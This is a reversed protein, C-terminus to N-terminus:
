FKYKLAFQVIRPNGVTSSIVGFGPGANHDVDPAGFKPTNTLNFIEGRFEIRNRETITFTRQLGLDLNLQSPGRLIGVGCNGFGTGDGIAPADTFAGPNFYGAPHSATQNLRSTLPGSSAPNEGTCEARTFGVLNGYVSGAASDNVTLPLGSQLVSVGSLQWHSLAIRPWRPGDKLSPSDYIFSFVVRHPRSFDDPGYSSRANNQDNGLFTLDFASTPGTGYTYGLSKSFTYSAQFSLGHSAAKTVSTQLSNYNSSYATNCIYSGSAIGEFPLRQPLNENTTTTQGNVPNEPTAILAQNFELCGTQHTIMSGVYGTQLLFNHAFEYQLNLDYQQSYPSKLNRGIASLFISSNPTRPVFVPFDANPILPPHYPQALTAAANEAGFPSQTIAFPPYGLNEMALQGSLRTYYIGYGGRLVFIPRQSLQYAFGLRPSFDKWDSNWMGPYLNKTYGAPLSGPFNSSVVYGSFGGAPSVDHSAISPDFNSLEGHTESPPGFYEYRLGANVSLRSNVKVDDQVFGALDTYRENKRFQGSSGSSEYLNSEGSGNQAASEGLLFDPFSLLFLFGDAGYPINVNLQNLKAEAGFRLNHRGRTVSLVDQWIFADTADFDSPYGQGGITFLGNVVIQPIEPYIPTVTAMGVNAALVPRSAASHGLFRMYGFRAVNVMGGNLVHTDSLVFMDNRQYVNLGFGPVTAGFPAFPEATTGLSSFFRGSLHNRSSIEHDLNVTFQDERYQAPISYTSEGLGSASVTQPSPIVFNGNPLKANLLALAVPSINSGNQAVAAGGFAGSQGGYIAGIAPASRDPGLVPLFSSVLSGAAQGNSQLTGQYSVFFFTKNSRVPGGLAGGFQNQRLVPRAQGNQNLFFDNANLADNRLFEWATGHFQNAGAKSVLDVNAGASRGYGADYMGTQVKFEAITDPAPIAVGVEPSYGSASNESINNADIGNYQFNNDTTRAGNAAVNQTNKGLAAANPTEVIVGPSLALIQTFNRSALPLAEITEQDTVWGLAATLTQALGTSATVTVNSTTAGLKLHVVVPTTETVVVNIQHVVERQFGSVEATVSYSGPLLSTSRFAGQENTVVDRAVGTADDVISVHAGTIVAGSSDFVQGAIAGTGPAQAFVRAPWLAVLAILSLWSAGCRLPGRRGHVAHNPHELGCLQTRM